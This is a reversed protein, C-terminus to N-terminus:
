ELQRKNRQLKTLIVKLKKVMSKSLRSIVSPVNDLIGPTFRATISAIRMLDGPVIVRPTFCGKLILTSVCSKIM